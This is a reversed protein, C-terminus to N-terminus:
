PCENVKEDKPKERNIQDHMQIFPEVLADQLRGYAGCLEKNIHSSRAIAETATMKKM